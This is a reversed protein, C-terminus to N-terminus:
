EKPSRRWSVANAWRLKAASVAPAGTDISTFDSEVIEDPNRFKARFAPDCRFALAPDRTLTALESLRERSPVFEASAKMTLWGWQSLVDDRSEAYSFTIDM